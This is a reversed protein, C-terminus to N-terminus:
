LDQPLASPPGERALVQDIEDRVKEPVLIWDDRQAVRLGFREAM